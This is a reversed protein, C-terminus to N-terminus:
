WFHSYRCRYLRSSVRRKMFNLSDELERKLASSGQKKELSESWFTKLNDLIKVSVPYYEPFRRMEYVTAAQRDAMLPGGDGMTLDKVLGHYTEFRAKKREALKAFIWQAAGWIGTAGAALVTLGPANSAIWGM